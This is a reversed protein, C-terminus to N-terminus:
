RHSNWKKGEKKKNEYYEAMLRVAKDIENKPTKQTKKQFGSLLVVLREEDFFCFVRFIDSGLTVRIEFLGDTDEMFKFYKIPIREM